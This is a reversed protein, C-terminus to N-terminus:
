KLKHDSLAEKAYKHAEEYDPQTKAWDLLEQSAIYYRARGRKRQRIFGMDAAGRIAARISSAGTGSTGGLCVTLPTENLEGDVLGAAMYLLKARANPNKTIISLTSMTQDGGVTFMM